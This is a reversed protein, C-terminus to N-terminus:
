LVSASRIIRAKSRAVRGTDHWSSASLSLSFFITAVINAHCGAEICSQLACM